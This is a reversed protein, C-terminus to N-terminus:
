VHYNKHRLRVNCTRNSVDDFVVNFLLQSGLPTIKLKHMIELVDIMLVNPKNFFKIEVEGESLAPTYCSDLKKLKLEQQIRPAEQQAKSADYQSFTIYVQKMKTGTKILNLIPIETTTIENDIAIRLKNIIDLTPKFELQHKYHYITRMIDDPMYDIHSKGFPIPKKPKRNKNSTASLRPM